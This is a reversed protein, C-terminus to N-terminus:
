EEQPAPGNVLLALMIEAIAENLKRPTLRRSVLGRYNHAALREIATFLVVALPYTNKVDPQTETIKRELGEIIAKVSQFRLQAFRLNGQDAEINRILLETTHKEWLKMYEDIFEHVKSRINERTWDQELIVLISNMDQAADQICAFLVDEIDNFYVYFSSTSTGAEFAVDAVTVDKYSTNKILQLAKEMIRKRTLQGKRGMKQGHKNLLEQSM